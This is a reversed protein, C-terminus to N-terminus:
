RDHACCTSWVDEWAVRGRGVLGKGSQGSVVTHWCIHICIDMNFICYHFKVCVIFISDWILLVQMRDEQIGVTSKTDYYEVGKLCNALATKGQRGRGMLTMNVQNLTTTGKQIVDKLKMAWCMPWGYWRLMWASACGMLHLCVFLCIFLCAFM